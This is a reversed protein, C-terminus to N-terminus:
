NSSFGDRQTMLQSFLKKVCEQQEQESINKLSSKLLVVLDVSPIAPQNLRFQERVIRKIRNRDVALACNKKSVIIGLRPYDRNMMLYHFAFCRDALRKGRKFVKDFEVAQRIRQKSLLRFNSM